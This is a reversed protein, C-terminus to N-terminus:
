ERSDFNEPLAGVFDETELEPLKMWEPEALSGLLRKIEDLSKGEFYENVGAKWSLTKDGNIKEIIPSAYQKFDFKGFVCVCLLVLVLVSKM